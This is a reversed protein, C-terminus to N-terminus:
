QGGRDSRATAQAGLTANVANVLVLPISENPEDKTDDSLTVTFTRSAVGPAFTVSGSAGGATYNVTATYGSATSLAVTITASGVNETVTYASAAFQVTPPPDNDVVTLTVTTLFGSLAANVPNSLVLPIAMKAEDKTDDTVVVTFTRSTVGPAIALAGSAGGATYDVSVTFASAVNLALTITASGANEVVSYASSQYQVTSPADNDLVTLTVTTPNGLTANVPNVLALAIVEDPEDLSDNTVAVTFARVTM